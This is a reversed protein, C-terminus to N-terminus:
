IRSDHIQESQVLEQKEISWQSLKGHADTTFLFENDHSIAIIMIFSKHVKGYSKFIVQLKVDIQFLYGDDDTTFLYKNDITLDIAWIIGRHIDGYNKLLKGNGIDWQKL